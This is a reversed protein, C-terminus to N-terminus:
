YRYLTYYFCVTWFFTQLIGVLVQVVGIVLILVHNHTPIDRAAALHIDARFFNTESTTTTYIAIFFIDLWRSIFPKHHRLSWFIDFEKTTTNTQLRRHFIMHINREPWNNTSDTVYCYLYRAIWQCTLSNTSRNRYVLM